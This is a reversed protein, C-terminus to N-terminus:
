ASFYAFHLNTTTMTMSHSHIRLNDAVGIIWHVCETYCTAFCVNVMELHFELATTVLLNMLAHHM